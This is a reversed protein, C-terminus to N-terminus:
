AGSVYSVEKLSCSDILQALVCSHLCPLLLANAARTVKDGGKRINNGDLDLIKSMM